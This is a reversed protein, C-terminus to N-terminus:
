EDVVIVPLVEYLQFLSTNTVIPVTNLMLIEWTRHCDVGAGPPSILHNALSRWFTKRM